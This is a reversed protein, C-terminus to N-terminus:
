AQEPPSAGPRAAGGAPLAWRVEFGLFAPDGLARRFVYNLSAEYCELAERKSASRPEDLKVVEASRLPALEPLGDLFSRWYADVDRRPSSERGDVWSPWGHLVCYPLDAYLSVPMGAHALLRGYRRTLLHDAHGGIGAPVYVHSASAIEAALASDLDELSVDLQSGRRFSAELLALNLPARGALALAHADEALREHARQAPDRAGIVAEWSGPRGGAPIGAFVNVVSLERDSSLLSWCSLAADDWHPSLVLEPAGPLVRLRPQLDREAGGAARTRVRRYLSRSLASLSRPRRQTM